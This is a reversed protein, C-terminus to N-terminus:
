LLKKILMGIIPQKFFKDRGKLLVFGAIAYILALILFGLWAKGLLDGILLAIGINLVVFFIFFVFFLAIGAAISSVVSSTKDIFKLKYLELRTAAYEKSQEFLSEILAVTPQQKNM